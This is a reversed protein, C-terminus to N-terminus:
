AVPVFVGAILMLGCVMQLGFLVHAYPTAQMVAMYQRAISTAFSPEHSFRVFGNIGYVLFIVGLLIRQSLAIIKM